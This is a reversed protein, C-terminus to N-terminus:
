IFLKVGRIHIVGVFVILLRRFVTVDPLVRARLRGIAHSTLILIVLVVLLARAVVHVAILILLFAIVLVDVQGWVFFVIICSEM